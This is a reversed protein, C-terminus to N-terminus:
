DKRLCVMIKTTREVGITGEPLSDLQGERVLSRLKKSDVIEEVLDLRDLRDLADIVERKNLVTVKTDRRKQVAASPLIVSRLGPLHKTWLEIFETSLAQKKKTLRARRTNYHDILEGMAIRIPMLRGELRKGIHAEKIRAATYGEVIKELRERLEASM